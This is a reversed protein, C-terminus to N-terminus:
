AAIASDWDVPGKVGCDRIFWAFDWGHSRALSRLRGEANGREHETAGRQWLAGIKQALEKVKEDLSAPRTHGADDVRRGRRYGSGSPTAVKIELLSIRRRAMALDRRLGENERQLDDIKAKMSARPKKPASPKKPSSPNMAAHFRKIM